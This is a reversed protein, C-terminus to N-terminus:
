PNKDYLEDDSLEDDSLLYYCSDAGTIFFYFRKASYLGFAIYIVGIIVGVIVGQSILYLGGFILMACSIGDIIRLNGYQRKATSSIREMKLALIEQAEFEGLAEKRKITSYTKFLGVVVLFFSWLWLVVGFIRSLKLFIISGSWAIAIAGFGYFALLLILSTKAKM